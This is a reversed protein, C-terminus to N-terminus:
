ASKTCSCQLGCHGQVKVKQSFSVRTTVTTM